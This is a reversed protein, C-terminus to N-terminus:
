SQFSVKKESEDDILSKLGVDDEENEDEQSSENSCSESSSDPDPFSNCLYIFYYFAFFLSSVM